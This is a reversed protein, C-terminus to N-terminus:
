KVRNSKFKIINKLHIISESHPWITSYTDFLSKVLIYILGSLCILIFLIFACFICILLIPHNIIFDGFPITALCLFIIIATFISWSITQLILKQLFNYVAYYKNRQYYLNSQTFALQSSIKEVDFFSFIM